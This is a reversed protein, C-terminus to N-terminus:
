LAVEIAVKNDLPDNPGCTKHLIKAMVARRDCTELPPKIGKGFEVVFLITAMACPIDGDDSETITTSVEQMSTICFRKGGEEIDKQPNLAAFVIEETEECIDDLQQAMLAYQTPQSPMGEVNRGPELADPARKHYIVVEVTLSQILLAANKKEKTREERTYVCACPLNNITPKAGRQIFVRGDLNASQAILARAVAHRFATRALM